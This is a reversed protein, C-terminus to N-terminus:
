HALYVGHKKVLEGHWAIALEALNRTCPPCAIGRIGPGSCSPTQSGPHPSARIFEDAMPEEVGRSWACSVEHPEADRPVLVPPDSRFIDKQKM